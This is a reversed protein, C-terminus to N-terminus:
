RNCYRDIEEMTDRAGEIAFEARVADGGFEPTDMEIVLKQNEALGALMAAIGADASPYILTRYLPRRKAEASSHFTSDWRERYSRGDDWRLTIDVHGNIRTPARLLVAAVTTQGKCAVVLAAEYDYSPSVRAALLAAAGDDGIKWSGGPISNELSGGNTASGDDDYGFWGEGTILWYIGAGLLLAAIGIAYLVAEGCGPGIKSM